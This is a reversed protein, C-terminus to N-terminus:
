TSTGLNRGLSGASITGQMGPTGPVPVCSSSLHLMCQHISYISDPSMPAHTVCCGHMCTQCHPQWRVPMHRPPSPSPTYDVPPRRLLLDWAPDHPRAREREREWDDRPRMSPRIIEVHRPRAPPSRSRSRCARMQLSYFRCQWPQLVNTCVVTAHSNCRSVTLGPIDLPDYFLWLLDAPSQVRYREEQRDPNNKSCCYLQEQCPSAGTQGSM